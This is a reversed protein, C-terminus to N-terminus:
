FVFFRAIAMFVVSLILSISAGRSYLRQNKQLTQLQAVQEPSPNGQIQEGLKVLAATTRGILIGYVFGVAGFGSGIGFGIGVSSSMWGTQFGGSDIWYLWAGALATLGAAISMRTTFKLNKVLHAAFKPGGEGIVGLTPAIFFTMMLVGGVWFTGAGIHIVRLLIHLYDM